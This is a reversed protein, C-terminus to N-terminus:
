PTRPEVHRKCEQYLRYVADAARFAAIGIPVLVIVAAATVVKEADSQPKRDM